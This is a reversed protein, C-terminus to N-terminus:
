CLLDVYKQCAHGRFHGNSHDWNKFPPLPLHHCHLFLKLEAAVNSRSLTNTDYGLLQKGKQVLQNQSSHIEICILSVQESIFSINKHSHPLPHDKPSSSSTFAYLAFLNTTLVSFLM